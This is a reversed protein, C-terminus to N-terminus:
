KSNVPGCCEWLLETDLDAAYRGAERLLEPGLPHEFRLLVRASKVKARRGHATEIQLSAPHTALITGVKFEGEEEYLVNM